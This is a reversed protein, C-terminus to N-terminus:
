MMNMHSAAEKATYRSLLDNPNTYSKIYLAKCRMVFLGGASIFM